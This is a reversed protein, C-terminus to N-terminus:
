VGSVPDLSMDSVVISINKESTFKLFEDFREDNRLNIASEVVKLSSLPLKNEVQDLSTFGGVERTSDIADDIKKITDKSGTYGSQLLQCVEKTSQLCPNASNIGDVEVPNALYEGVCGSSRCSQVEKELNSIQVVNLQTNCQEHFNSDAVVITEIFM